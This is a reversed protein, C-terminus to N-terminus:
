SPMHDHQGLKREERVGKFRFIEHMKHYNVRYLSSIYLYNALSM